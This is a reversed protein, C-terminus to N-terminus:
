YSSNRVALTIDMFSTQGEIYAAYLTEPDKGKLLRCKGCAECDHLCKWFDLVYDRREERTSQDIKPATKMM